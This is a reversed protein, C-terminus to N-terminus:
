CYPSRLQYQNDQILESSPARALPLQGEPPLILSAEPSDLSTGPSVFWM